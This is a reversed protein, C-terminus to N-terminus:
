KPPPEGPSKESSSLRARAVSAMRAVAAYLDSTAGKVILEQVGLRTAERRVSDDLYASLIGTPLDPCLSRLASVLDLGTMGPMSYDTVLLDFRGPDARLVELVSSADLYTEVKYGRVRLLVGIPNLVSENDDVLAIRLAAEKAASEAARSAAKPFELTTM